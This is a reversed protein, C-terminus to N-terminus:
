EFPPQSPQQHDARVRRVFKKGIRQVAGGPPEPGLDHLLAHEFVGSAGTAGVAAEHLDLALDRQERLSSGGIVHQHRGVFTLYEGGVQRISRAIWTWNSSRGPKDWLAPVSSM